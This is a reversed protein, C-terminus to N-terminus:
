HTRRWKRSAARIFMEYHEATEKPSELMPLHGVQEMIVVRAHPFVETLEEVSSVDLIRDQDGWLVLTPIAPEPKYDKLYLSLHFVDNFIKGNRHAREQAKRTLFGIVFEPIPPVKVFLAKLMNKFDEESNIILLNKGNKVGSIFPSPKMKEVGATNM